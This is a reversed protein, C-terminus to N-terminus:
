PMTIMKRVIWAATALLALLVILPWRQWLSRFESTQEEIRPVTLSSLARNMEEASEFFRGGSSAAISKLIATNAPRPVSEASFPKVFFSIPDSTMRKGGSLASATATHMGPVAAKFATAFGPYVKGSSTTVPEARMAFPSKEGQPLEIECRVQAQPDEAGGVLVSLRIEDGIVM